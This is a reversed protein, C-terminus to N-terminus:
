YLVCMPRSTPSSALPASSPPAHHPCRQGPILPRELHAYQRAGLGSTSVLAQHWKSSPRGTARLTSLCPSSNATGEYILIATLRFAVEVEALSSTADSYWYETSASCSLRPPSRVQGGTSAGRIEQRASLLTTSPLLFRGCHLAGPLTTDPVPGYCDSVTAGVHMEVNRSEKEDRRSREWRGVVFVVMDAGVTTQMPLGRTLQARTEPKRTRAARDVMRAAREPRQPLEPLGM